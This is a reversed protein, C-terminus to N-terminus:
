RKTNDHKDMQQDIINRIKRNAANEVSFRIRYFISNLLDSIYRKVENM